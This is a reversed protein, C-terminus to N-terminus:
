KEIYENSLKTKSYQVTKMSIKSWYNVKQKSICLKRSIWVQIYVKSYFAQIAWAEKNIKKM